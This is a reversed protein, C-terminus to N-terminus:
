PPAPTRAAEPILHAFAARRRGRNPSRDTMDFNHPPNEALIALKEAHLASEHDPYVEYEWRAVLQGWRWGSPSVHALLRNFLNISCGIYLLNDDKDFLRYVCPGPFDEVLCRDCLEFRGPAEHYSDVQSVWRGCITRATLGLYRGDLWLTEAEAPRHVVRGQMPASSVIFTANARAPIQKVIRGNLKYRRITGLGPVQEKVMTARNRWTM